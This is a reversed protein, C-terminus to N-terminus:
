KKHCGRCERGAVIERGEEVFAKAAFVFGEFALDDLALDGRDLVIERHDVDAQLAFAANRQAFEGRRALLGVELDAVFDFDIDVPDLVAAPSAISDRSRARRSAAQSLSSFSNSAPLRTSPTIKPRTLPPKVTSRPPATAKRGPLWTSMRGTRSTWGSISRGCGNWTRLISRRRPLITTDRRAIRSSVRASCRLPRMWDAEGLALDDVAHDLVDGIVAREDVEAPDVAQEVDGVDAVLADVVRGFHEADAVRHLHLDDADVAVGLADAEAHLLELAIRPFASRGFIRDVAHELPRTVLMVSYPANTSSSGPMSPRTWTESILQVLFFTWGPLITLVLWSTSTLTSSTSSSFRRM